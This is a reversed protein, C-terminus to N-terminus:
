RCVHTARIERGVVACVLFFRSLESEARNYSVDWRTKARDALYKSCRNQGFLALNQSIAHGRAPNPQRSSFGCATEVTRSGDRVCSEWTKLSAFTLCITRFSRSVSLTPRNECGVVACLLFFAFTREGCSQVFSGMSNECLRCSIQVVRFSGLVALKSICRPFATDRLLPITKSRNDRM